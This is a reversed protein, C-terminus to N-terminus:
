KGEINSLKSVGFCTTQAMNNNNIQYANNLKLVINIHINLFFIMITLLAVIIHQNFQKVNISM